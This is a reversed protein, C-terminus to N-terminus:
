EMHSTDGSLDDPTFVKLEISCLRQVDGAISGHIIRDLGVRDHTFMAILDVAEREAAGVIARPVSKAVAVRYRWRDWRDPDGGLQEVLGRMYELARGSEEEEQQTDSVVQGQVVRTKGPSIVRLFVVRFEDELESEIRRFVGESEPSGDLPILVTRYM